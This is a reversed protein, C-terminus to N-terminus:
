STELREVEQDTGDNPIQDLLSRGSVKMTPHLWDPAIELLPVLVFRREHLRPHPITLSPLNIRHDGFTLLDLDLTRPGWRIKRERGFDREIDQITLLLDQPTLDTECLLVGNIFWPQDALMQPRTRYLSSAEIVRICPHDRLREIADLCIQVSDGLNSGFGILVREM